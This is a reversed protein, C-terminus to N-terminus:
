WSDSRSREIEEQTFQGGMRDPNTIWSDVYEKDKAYALAQQLKQVYDWLLEADTLQQGPKWPKNYDAAAQQQLRALADQTLSM